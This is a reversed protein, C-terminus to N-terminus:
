PTPAHATMAVRQPVYKSWLRAATEATDTMALVALGRPLNNFIWDLDAPPIKGWILLPRERLIALHKSHIERASPGGTDIHMEVLSVGMGLYADIPVFGTSHTHIAIHPFATAVRRDCPEIFQGYLGPSLLAAADEQHWVTGAPMWANYFFSGVGGHFLPIRDLQFKGAAIFFGALKEAVRRIEEPRDFMAMVFGTGGYLSSLLDTIGRMRTTALPFRGAARKALADLMQGMLRAWPSDPDFAPINDPSFRVPTEARISGTAHSVFLPCGLLAELWPIGWFASGSFIFDGGLKETELFIREADAAYANPDFDAPALPRDEPLSHSSPYRPLPFESGPSFGFLPRKNERRLFARFLEVRQAIPKHLIAAGSM